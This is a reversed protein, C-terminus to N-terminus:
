KNGSALEGVPRATAFRADEAAEAALQARKNAEQYRKAKETIEEPTISVGHGEALNAVAAAAQAILEALMSIQQAIQGANM